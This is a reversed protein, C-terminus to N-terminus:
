VELYYTDPRSADFCESAWILTVMDASGTNVISHTYGTPVDVVQLKDGSVEIVLPESGHVPRLRIEGAGAVVLFKENKTHHWHKGKTQGPATVNVSIQGQGDTRFVEAFSGRADHKAELAYALDDPRLYSLYTAYLKRTLQDNQDPLALSARLEAFRGILTALEGVTTHYVPQVERFGAGASAGACAALLSVMDDVVDDVYVLSLPATADNVALPLGRAANHCFTAVVSNYNPKCWKGFVGPLRYVFAASGNSEAWAALRQEAAKKSRGYANDLAAQTSSSLLVPCKNQHAALLALVQELSGVNGEEFEAETKPRNVGALHVVADAMACCEGLRGADTNRDACLVTLGGQLARSTDKGDRINELTAVLNEGIFGESGTVLINM